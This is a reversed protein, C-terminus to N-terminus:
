IVLQSGPFILKGSPKGGFSDTSPGVWVFFSLMFKWTRPSMKPPEYEAVLLFGVVVLAVVVVVVVVVGLVM